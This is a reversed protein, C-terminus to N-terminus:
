NGNKRFCKGDAHFVGTSMKNVLCLASMSSKRVHLPLSARGDVDVSLGPTLHRRSSGPYDLLRSESFCAGNYRSHKLLDDPLSSIRLFALTRGEARPSHPPSKSVSMM